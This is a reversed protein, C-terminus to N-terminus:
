ANVLGFSAGEENRRSGCKWEWDRLLGRSACMGHYFTLPGVIVPGGHVM